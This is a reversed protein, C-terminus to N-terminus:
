LVPSALTRCNSPANKPCHKAHTRWDSDYRSRSPGRGNLLEIYTERTWKRPRGRPRKQKIQPSVDTRPYAQRAIVNRITRECVGLEYAIRKQPWRQLLQRGEAINRLYEELIPYQKILEEVERITGRRGAKKWPANSFAADVRAKQQDLLAGLTKLRAVAEGFSSPSM